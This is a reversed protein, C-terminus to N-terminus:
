QFQMKSGVGSVESDIRVKQTQIPSEMIRIGNKLTDFEEELVDKENNCALIVHVTQQALELLQKHVLDTSAKTLEV